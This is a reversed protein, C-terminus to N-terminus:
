YCAVLVVMLVNENSSDDNDDDGDGDDDDDDDFASTKKGSTPFNFNKLLAQHVAIFFASKQFLVSNDQLTCCQCNTIRTESLNGILSLISSTKVFINKPANSRCYEPIPIHQVLSENDEISCNAEKCLYM